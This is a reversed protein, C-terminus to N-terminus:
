PWAKGLQLNSFLCDREVQSNGVEEGKKVERERGSKGEEDWTDRNYVAGGETTKM